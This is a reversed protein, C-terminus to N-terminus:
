DEDHLRSVYQAEMERIAQWRQDFPVEEEPKEEEEEPPGIPEWPEGDLARNVGITVAHGMANLMDYVRAERREARREERLRQASLVHTMEGLSLTWAQGALSPAAALVERRLRAATM